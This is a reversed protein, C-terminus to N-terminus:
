FGEFGYYEYIMRLGAESPAVEIQDGMDGLLRAMTSYFKTNPANILDSDLFLVLDRMFDAATYPSIGVTDVIWPVFGGEKTSNRLATVLNMYTQGRDGDGYNALQQHVLPLVETLLDILMTFSEEGQLVWHNPLLLSDDDYYALLKALVYQMGKVQDTTLSHQAMVDLINFLYESICNPRGEVMFTDVLFQLDDLTGDDAANTFDSWDPDGNSYSADDDRFQNLGEDAAEGIVTELIDDLDLDIYKAANDPRPRMAYMWEPMDLQKTTETVTGGATSQDEYIKIAEAKTMKMSSTVQELGYLLKAIAETNVTEPAAMTETVAPRGDGAAIDYSTLQSLLGDARQARNARNESSDSDVLMSFVTLKNAPSFFDRAVDGGFWAKPDEDRETADDGVFNAIQHDPMLYMSHPYRYTDTQSGAIRPLWCNKAIGAVNDSVGLNDSIDYNFFVLPKILPTLGTLMKAVANNTESSKIHLNALLSVLIPLVSNRKKWVLDGQSASSWARFGTDKNESDNNEKHSGLLDHQYNEGDASTILPSRPFGLRSLAVINHAVAAPTATGRQNTDNYVMNATLIIGDTYCLVTIRYDGPITSPSSNPTSTPSGTNAKAWVGNSRFKRAMSLGTIGNGEIIQYASGEVNCFGLAVGQLWLPVILVMKKENMVWQFNRFIAEEHSACERNANIIPIETYTLCGAVGNANASVDVPSIDRGNSHHILYYDTNWSPRFRNWRKGAEDPDAADYSASVPYAYSWGSGDAPGTKTVRAYVSGDPRYYTNVGGSETMGQSSYYPGEGEWCARVVHAFTWSALDKMNKGNATYPKYQDTGPAVGNPNGGSPSGMDGSCPGTLFRLIPYDWTFSLYYPARNAAEIDPDSNTAITFPKRSRCVRKLSDGKSVGNTEFLLEYTGLGTTRSSMYSFLADNMTLYGVNEGHGHRNAVSFESDASGTRMEGADALHKFGFNGAIAGLYLLHELINASYAGSATRDRGHADFRILDYISEKLQTQDWNLYLNDINELAVTLPYEQSTTGMSKYVMSSPRDDRQFLGGSLTLFERLTEQLESDSFIAGPVHMNYVDNAFTSANVTTTNKTGYGYGGAIFYNSLNWVLKEVMATNGLATNLDDILEYMFERDITEGHLLDFLGSLLNNVGKASNGLDSDVINGHAYMDSYSTVLTDDGADGTGQTNIWMPFDAMAMMPAVLDMLDVFTDERFDSTGNAPDVDETLDTILDGITTEMEAPTKEEVLYNVIKNTMGMVSAGMGPTTGGVDTTVEDLLSYFNNMLTEPTDKAFFSNIPDGSNDESHGYLYQDDNTVVALTQKLEDLLGFGPDDGVEMLFALIKMFEAGVPLNERLMEAMKANGTSGPVSDWAAKLSPYNDFLHFLNFPADVDNTQFEKMKSDSCSSMILSASIVLVLFALKKFM